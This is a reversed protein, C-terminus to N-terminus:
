GNLYGCLVYVVGHETVTLPLLVAIAM